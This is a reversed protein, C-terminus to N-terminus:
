LKASRGLSLFLWISMIIAVIFGFLGLISFGSESSFVWSSGIIISALLLSFCIQGTMKQLDTHHLTIKLEGKEIIDYGKTIQRLFGGFDNFMDTIAAVTDTLWWHSMLRERVLDRAFPEAVEFFNFDPDLQRGIGETTVVTKIMLMMDPVIRVQYRYMLSVMDTMVERINIQKLPLSSYKENLYTLDKKLRVRDIQPPITGISLLADIVSDMNKRVVAVFLDGLRNRMAVDIEGVLGFDVFVIKGEETVFLNGPHPDAHFFGYVLIQKIYAGVGAKAIAKRDLGNKKMGEIDLIKIGRVREMCLVRSTTYNWNVKPVYVSTDESLNKRFREANQVEHLYDTEQELFEKVEHAIAVFDYRGKFIKRRQMFLAADMLIECDINVVTRIEPRLVKVVVEEGSKLVARHVQGLSASAFPKPDFEKFVESVPIGGFDKEIIKKVDDFPFPPVGDQLKELEEILEGPLLEARTSLIQGMKIFAGGLDELVMRAREWKNFGATESHTPKKHKTLRPAFGTLGLVDIIFGLQHRTLVEVIQKYRRIKGYITKISM